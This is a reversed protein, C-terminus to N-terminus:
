SASNYTRVTWAAAAKALPSDQPIAMFTSRAQERDGKKFYAIGLAMRYRDPNKLGGKKLGSDLSSVAKDYQELSFYALGLGADMVGTSSSSAQVQKEEAGLQQRESDAKKRAAALSAKHVDTTLVKSDVGKQLVRAAESHSASDTALQAYDLYQDPRTLAGVDAYLRYWQLLVPESKEKYTMRSLYRAWDDEKPFYRLLKEYSSAILGEDELSAASSLAVRLWTEKPPEPTKEALGVLTTMTTYANKHDKTLYYANGLTNLVIADDPHDALWRNGYEVAKGYEKANYSAGVIQKIRNKGADGIFYEPTQLSREYIALLEPFNIGQIAYSFARLEDIQFQDYPTKKDVAEAEKLKTEAVDFQKANIAASAENYLVGVKKSVQLPAPEKEKDKDKSAGIAPMAISMAGLMVLSAALATIFRGMSRSEHVM